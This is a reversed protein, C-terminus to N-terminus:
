IVGAVRAAKLYTRSIPLEAGSKTVILNQGNHRKNSAIFNHAIWHSRHIQIGANEPLATIADALRMLILESGKNTTVKVYHDQAELSLIQQGLHVPLRQLLTPKIPHNTPASDELIYKRTEMTVLYFLMSVVVAIIMCYVLLLLFPLNVSMEFGYIKTNIMWVLTAIPLGSVLGGVLRSLWEPAGYSLATHGAFHSVGYGIFYNLSTMLLWYILREAFPLTSFTNFPGIITLVVIMAGLGIWHSPSTLMIQLERLTFQTATDNAFNQKDSVFQRNDAGM